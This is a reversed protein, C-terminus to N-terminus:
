RRDARAGVASQNIERLWKKLQQSVKAESPPLSKLAQKIAQKAEERHGQLHVNYVYNLAFRPEQPDLEGARKLHTLSEEPAYTERHTPDALLVGLLHHARAYNPYGDLAGRCAAISGARDGQNNRIHAINYHVIHDRPNVELAALYFKLAQQDDKQVRYYSGLNGLATLHQPDVDVAQHFLAADDKWVATQKFSLAGLVLLVVLSGAGFAVQKHDVRQLLFVAALAPGVLALYWYRDATYSSGIYVLGLVPAL